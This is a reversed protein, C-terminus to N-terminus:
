SGPRMFDYHTVGTSSGSVCVMLKKQHVNYKPTHPLEGQGVVTSFTQNEYQIWKEDYTFIQSFFPDSKHCSLLMMM